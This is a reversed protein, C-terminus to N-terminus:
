KIVTVGAAISEKHLSDALAGREFSGLTELIPVAKLFQEYTERKKMSADKVIHNFTERDLEWIVAPDRAEVSAARPCNYLLALEGFFDGPGCKKVVKEEGQLKKLCEIAGKEIVFMVDGDAGEQIIRENAAIEKEIM